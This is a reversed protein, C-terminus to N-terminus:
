ALRLLQYIQHRAETLAARDWNFCHNAHKQFRGALKSGFGQELAARDEDAVDGYLDRARASDHRKRDKAFGDKMNYFWRQEESLRGWAEAANSNEAQLEDIPMYSEIFRRHLRWYRGSLHKMVEPEWRFAQCEIQRGDPSSGDWTPACEDPHLRDSDFMFYTRLKMAPRDSRARLRAIADSGGGHLPEIWRRDIKRLFSERQSPSMLSLIFAFDNEANEVLVGLPEALVDLTLDFPLEALPDDWTAVPGAAIKITAIDRGQLSAERACLQLAIGYQNRSADDITSLWGDLANAPDVVVTHRGDRAHGLLTHLKSSKEEDALIVAVADATLM